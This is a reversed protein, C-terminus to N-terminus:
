NQWFASDVKWKNDEKVFNIIIQQTFKRDSGPNGTSELRQTSVTVSATGAQDNYQGADEAIAKTTIGYYASTDPHKIIENNIYDEAWVTMKQSMFVKLDKINGYGAQNSFSGFREAFSVALIKIGAEGLDKTDRVIQPQNKVPEKTEETKPLVTQTTTPAQSTEVAPLEGTNKQTYFFLFYIIIALFILGALIVAIAKKRNNDM